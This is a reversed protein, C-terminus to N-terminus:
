IEYYERIRSDVLALDNDIELTDFMGLPSKCIDSGDSLTKFVYKGNSIMARIAITFMGEICVKDDLMKGITKPKIDGFENKDEHMVFYVIKDEPLTKVVFRILGWFKDGLDNYFTFIGNGKGESSHGRMFQNTMLYGADDIVISKAECSNLVKLVTAYDDTTVSKVSNKFPLPKGLVNILGVNEFNRLSTSKGSGSKGMILVPIGM